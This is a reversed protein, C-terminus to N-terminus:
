LSLPPLYKMGQRIVQRDERMRKLLMRVASRSKSIEAAIQAPTMAGDERLLELIQRRESNLLQLADDGLVRWGFPEQAFRLALTREETERGLVNLTAEGEPKRNLHWLTDVAAAIGGTGAVAEVAGDSPGKRVHHVLVIATKFDEALKRVRSVEEYQSRFVDGNHKGGGKVLATLTDLVVLRPEIQRILAELQEAGGGMLPLLEHVFHVKASWAGPEALERLRAITRRAPEEFAGYLVSGEGVARIGEITRGGAAHIAMQLTWWSKGAKAKAFFLTLGDWLLDEFLPRLRVVEGAYLEAASTLRPLSSGVSADWKGILRDLESQARVEQRV